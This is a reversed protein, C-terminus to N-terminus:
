AAGGPKPLARLPAPLALQPAPLALLPAKPKPKKAEREAAKVNAKAATAAQKQAKATDALERMAQAQQFHDNTECTITVTSKGNVTTAKYSKLLLGIKPNGYLSFFM